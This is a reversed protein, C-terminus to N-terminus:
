EKKLALADEVPMGIVLTNGSYGGASSCADEITQLYRLKLLGPNNEFQRSANALCRLAAAEARAKELSAQGEMQATKINSYALKFENSLMVDKVGVNLITVGLPIAHAKLTTMVTDSLANRQEMVEDLTLVTVADRLADQAFLHLTETYSQVNRLALEPDSVEYHIVISLKCTLNDKTLIEQGKLQFFTPRLDVLELSYNRGFYLHEGSSLRSIFKGGKYLLGNTGDCVTFRHIYLSKINDLRNYIVLAVTVIFAILIVTEFKM